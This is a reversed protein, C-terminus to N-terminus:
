LNHSELYYLFESPQYVKVPSKAYDKINRTIICDMETRLATEAMVADEYDTMESLIAKRCDLGATDLPEFLIFLKAMIKRTASDSHTSRHTLYYIDTASKATIFANFEKNAAKIFIKEANEKFPERAQLADIIVCTDILVRM